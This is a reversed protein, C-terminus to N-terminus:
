VRGSTLVHVIERVNFILWLVGSAVAIVQLIEKAPAALRGGIWYVLYCLAGVILGTIFLEM